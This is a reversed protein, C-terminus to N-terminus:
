CELLSTDASDHGEVFYGQDEDDTMGEMMILM